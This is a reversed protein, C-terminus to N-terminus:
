SQVAEAVVLSLNGNLPGSVRAKLVIFGPLGSQEVARGDDTLVILKTTGVHLQGTEAIGSMAQLLFTDTAVLVMPRRKKM